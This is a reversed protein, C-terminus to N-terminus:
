ANNGDAEGVILFENKNYCPHSFFFLKQNIATQTKLACAVDAFQM